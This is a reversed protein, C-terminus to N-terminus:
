YVEQQYCKECFVIEPREPAFSTKIEKNCKQCTRDYLKPMRLRTFRFKQRCNFCEHPLPLNLQKILNYEGITFRYAKQCSQCEIVEKLISEETESITDPLDQAKKTITYKNGEGEYWKFGEALAEEQTKPFFTQAMTENYAFPSFDLPLFEGYFWKRGIKDIYPMDKMNQIIQPVLKEYEEKSYQKNLICYEKRKLNVCGFINKRATTYFSYEINMSNPWCENSFKINSVLEGVMMSEYILEAKNGWATYDYCDKTSASSLMSVFCSNEVGTVLYADHTNKSQQIYEGSVNLNLSSGVYFRVPYKNWFKIIERRLQYLNEYSNLKFEELKKFYDEKSYPENFICYSKNRLNVCGFINNCNSCAKSFYTDICSNCEESFFTKYCKTCKINEYCLESNYTELCDLSNKLQVMFSSYFVNESYDAFFTLYCNKLHGTGQM